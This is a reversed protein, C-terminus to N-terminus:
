LNIGLRFLLEHEPRRYFFSKKVLPADGDIYNMLYNASIRVHKTGWADLGLAFTHLQYGGAAPDANGNVPALGSVDFGTHEYRALVRLGWRPAPGAAFAKIHPM